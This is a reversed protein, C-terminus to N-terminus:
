QNTKIAARLQTASSISTGLTVTTSSTVAAPELQLFVLGAIAPVVASSVTTTSNKAFTGGV